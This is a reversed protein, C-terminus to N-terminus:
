IEYRRRMLGRQRQNRSYLSWFGILMLALSDPEPVPTISWSAQPSAYVSLNGSGTGTLDLAFLADGGSPDDTSVLPMLNSDLIFFSFADPIGGAFLDSIELRFQFANGLTIPQLLENFFSTDSFTVTANLSGDVDGAPLAQVPDFSGDTLFNAVRATNNFVGDGNTFDFALIAPKGTLNATNVNIDFALGWAQSPVVAAQILLGIILIKLTRNM